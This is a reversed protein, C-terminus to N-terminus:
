TKEVLFSDLTTSKFKGSWPNTYLIVFIQILFIPRLWFPWYVCLLRDVGVFALIIASFTQAADPVIQVYFCTQLTVFNQAILAIVFPPIFGLLYIADALGQIALLINCTGNLNRLYTFMIVDLKLHM